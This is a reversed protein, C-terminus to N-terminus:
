DKTFTLLPVNYKEAQKKAFNLSIKNPAIVAVTKPNKLNVESYKKLNNLINKPTECEVAEAYLKHMKGNHRSKDQLMINTYEQKYELCNVNDISEESYNDTKSACVFSENDCNLVLLATVNAGTATFLNDKHKEDILSASSYIRNNYYEKLEKSASDSRWNKPFICKVLIKFEGNIDLDKIDTLEDFWYQRTTFSCLKEILFLDKAISKVIKYGEETFGKIEGSSNIKYILSNRHKIQDFVKFRGITKIDFGKETYKKYLEEIEQSNNISLNLFQEYRDNFCDIYESIKCVNKSDFDEQYFKQIGLLSAYLKECYLAFEIDGYTRESVAKRSNNWNKPLLRIIKSSSM